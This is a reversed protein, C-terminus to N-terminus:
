LQFVVTINYGVVQITLVLSCQQIQSINGLSHKMLSLSLSLSLLMPQVLILLSPAADHSLWHILSLFRKKRIRDCCELAFLCWQVCVSVSSNIESYPWMYAVTHAPTDYITDMAHASTGAPQEAGPFELHEQHGTRGQSQCRCVEVSCFTPM